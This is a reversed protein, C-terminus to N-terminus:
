FAKYKPSVGGEETTKRKGPEHQVVKRNKATVGNKQGGDGAGAVAIVLEHTKRAAGM